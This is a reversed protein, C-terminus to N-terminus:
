LFKYKNINLDPYEIDSVTNTNSYEFRISIIDIDLQIKDSMTAWQKYEFEFGSM